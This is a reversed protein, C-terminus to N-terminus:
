ALWTQAPAPSLHMAIAFMIEGTVFGPLWRQKQEATAYEKLYPLCLAVHVGSGGLAVGARAVEETVISQYKFSEEGAGGYEDPVEIGFVGLEGLKYYFERPVQGADFWEDFVPVVETEIFARLTKRFAEHDDNFDNRRM